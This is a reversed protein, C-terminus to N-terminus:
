QNEIVNQPEPFAAGKAGHTKLLRGAENTSKAIIKKAHGSGGRFGNFRKIETVYIAALNEGNV